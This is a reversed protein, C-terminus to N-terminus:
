YKKPQDEFSRTEVWFRTLFNINSSREVLEAILEIKSKEPQVKIIDKLIYILQYMTDMNLSFASEEHKIYKNLLVLNFALKRVEKAEYKTINISLKFIFDYIDIESIIEVLREDNNKLDIDNLENIINNFTVDSIENEAIGYTFYKDFYRGSCLRKNQYWSFKHENDYIYNSYVTNLQPFVTTLISLLKTNNVDIVSDLKVKRKELNYNGKDRVSYSKEDNSMQLFIMRDYKISNYLKKDIHNIGELIFLDNMNVEGKMLAIKVDLSNIFRIM